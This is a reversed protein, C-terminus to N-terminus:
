KVKIYIFIYIYIIYIIYTGKITDRFLVPTVSHGPHLLNVRRYAVKNLSVIFHVTQVTQRTLQEATCDSIFGEVNPLFSQSDLLSCPTVAWSSSLRCM